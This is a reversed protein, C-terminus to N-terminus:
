LDFSIDITPCHAFQGPPPPRADISRALDTVTRRTREREFVRGADVIDERGPAM